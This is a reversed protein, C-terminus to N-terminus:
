GISDKNYQIYCFYDIDARFFCSDVCRSQGVSDAVDPDLLLTYHRGPFPKTKASTRASFFSNDSILRIGAATEKKETMEIGASIGQKRVSAFYRYDRALGNIFPDFRALNEYRDKFGIQRGCITDM